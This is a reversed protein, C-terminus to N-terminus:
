PVHVGVPWFHTGDVHDASRSYVRVVAYSGSPADSSATVTLTATDGDNVASYVVGDLTQQRETAITASFDGSPPYAILPYVYWDARAATSWATLQVTADAGPAVEVWGTSASTDFYPAPSPPVCPDGGAAAARNSWIRQYTWAGETLFTGSCLDGNEVTGAQASAWPSDSWPPSPQVIHYGDGTDTLAEAVEHSAIRTASSNDSASCRQVWALSDRQSDLVGHAGGLANCGCNVADGTVANVGPPLYLVYISQGAPSPDLAQVYARMDDVSVNGTLPPGDLHVSTGTAEAGYEPAFSALWASQVLADGFAFLADHLPDDTTVVTVLRLPSLPGDKGDPIVPFPAHPAQVFSRDAPWPKPTLASPDIPWSETQPPQACPLDVSGHCSAAAAAVVLGLGVAAAARRM